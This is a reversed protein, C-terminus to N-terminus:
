GLHLRKKKKKGKTHLCEIQSDNSLLDFRFIFIIEKSICSFLGLHLKGRLGEAKGQFPCAVQGLSM